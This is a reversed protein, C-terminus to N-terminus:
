IKMLKLYILNEPDNTFRCVFLCLCVNRCL